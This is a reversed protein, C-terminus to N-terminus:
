ILPLRPRPVLAALRQMFGAIVDENNPEILSTNSLTGIFIAVKMPNGNNASNKSLAILEHKVL